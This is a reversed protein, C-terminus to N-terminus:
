AAPPTEPESAEQLKAASWSEILRFGVALLTPGLFVGVVGFALAGGIVGLFILVFPTKSGQSILYPKVINDVGSIGFIGWLTLFIGWGVSGQTFLWIAAPIWLLPPGIPLPSFFFTMVALLGAGPIGAVSFGIGAVVAQVLATGLIGYVVGRVTSGAVHLLRRGSEGAIRRAGIVLREGLERGDRLLFFTLFVSLVVETIGKGIAVGIALLAKRGWAVASGVLSIVRSPRAAEEATPPPTVTLPDIPPVAPADTVIEKNGRELVIKPRPPPETSAKDIEELWKRRSEAFERWYAAAEDGLYPTKVIWAPPDKPASDIWKKTANGLAKADDVLSFGIAVFPGVLGVLLFLTVLLAAFTKSHFWRICRFQLPWLAYALVIAWMLASLFPRMVTFCGLLLLILATTGMWPEARKVNPVPPQEEM